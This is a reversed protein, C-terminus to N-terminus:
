SRVHIRVFAQVFVCVCVCVCVCVSIRVSLQIRLCKHWCSTNHQPRPVSVPVQLGLFHLRPLRFQGLM